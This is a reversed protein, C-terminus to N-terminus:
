LFAWFINIADTQGDTRGDSVLIQRHHRPPDRPGSFSLVAGREVDEIRTGIRFGIGFGYINDVRRPPINM